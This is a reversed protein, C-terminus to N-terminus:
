SLTLITRELPALACLADTLRGLYEYMRPPVRAM